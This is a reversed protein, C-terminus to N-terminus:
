DEALARYLRDDYPSGLWPAVADRFGRAGASAAFADLDGARRWVAILNFHNGRSVQQWVEFGLNGPSGCAAAALRGLAEVPEPRMPGAIDLHAVVYLPRPAAPPDSRRGRAALPVPRASGVSCGADLERYARRDAPATLLALLSRLLPRAQRERAALAEAKEARELLVFREARDTEELVVAGSPTARGRLARAYERLVAQARPISDSRVEIFTLLRAPQAQPQVAAGAGTIAGAGGGTAAAAAGLVSLPGLIVLALRLSRATNSGPYGIARRM